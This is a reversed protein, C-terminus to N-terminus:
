MCMQVNGWARRRIILTVDSPGSRILFRWKPKIQEDNIVHAVRRWMPGSGSVDRLEETLVKCPPKPSTTMTSRESNMRSKFSTHSVRWFTASTRNHRHRLMGPHRLDQGPVRPVDRAPEHIVGRQHLERHRPLSGPRHRLHPRSNRGSQHAERHRLRPRQHGSCPRCASTLSLFLLRIRFYCM